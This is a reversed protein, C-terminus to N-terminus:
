QINEKEWFYPCRCNLFVEAKICFNLVPCSHEMSVTNNIVTQNGTLEFAKAAWSSIFDLHCFYMSGLCCWFCCKHFYKSRCRLIGPVYKRREKPGLLTLISFQRNHLITPCLFTSRHDCDSVYSITTISFMPMHISSFFRSFLYSVLFTTKAKVNAQAIIELFNSVKTAWNGNM